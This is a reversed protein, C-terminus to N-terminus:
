NPNKQREEMTTNKFTLKQYSKNTDFDPFIFKPTITYTLGKWKNLQAPSEADSLKQVILRRNKGM